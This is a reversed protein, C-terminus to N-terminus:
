LDLRMLPFEKGDKHIRFGSGLYLEIPGSPNDCSGRRAFTEIAKERRKALESIISGLLHSGIGLRRFPRQPIFLCSILVADDSPPGSDYDASRPLYRSPAYQAYSVSQGDLYVIKGCNGWGSNVRRLWGLKKEIVDKKQETAPDVCEEPFEWYICYKCSFPHSAWEPADILTKGTLDVIKANMIAVGYRVPAGGGGSPSVNRTVFFDQDITFSKPPYLLPRIGQAIGYL